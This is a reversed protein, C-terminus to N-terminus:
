QELLGSVETISGTVAPPLRNGNAAEWARIADLIESPSSPGLECLAYAAALQVGWPVDEEKAHQLFAGIVSSINRVASSFGEKLGIQSLRGILRLVTAVIVDSPSSANGGGPRNKIWRDMLPWLEKSIIHDHTWVWKQHACLLDIAFVYEWVSEKLDEGREESAQFEMHPCLKIATLLSSITASIDAPGSEEWSLVAKLCKLVQGKARKRAVLQVAKNIVGESTFIESWMNGMFLILKGPQPFDRRVELPAPAAHVLGVEKLLSYCFLRARELDRLQRCIGVYVRCLSHIYGAEVSAKQHKLKKLIAHLIPEALWKKAIGFEYVVEKEEDTMIPISLTGGVHVRSHIVPFLDFCSKSMKELAAAVARDEPHTEEAPLLRSSDGVPLIADGNSLCATEGAPGQAGPDADRVSLEEEGPDSKSLESDLRLRKASKPMAPPVLMRKGAEGVSSSPPESFSTTGTKVFATSSSAIEKYGSIQHIPLPVNKGELSSPRSLQINGKLINLTLARASLRPYMSDLIKVSNEQPVAQTASGAASPPFRGPVPLAHKPTAACFQLPSSLTRGGISAESPSPTTHPAPRKQKPKDSLPSMLPPLPTECLPSILENLPSPLSFQGSSSMIPSIPQLTRPPTAILPPLLPPLPPGMEQRIKRLTKPFHKVPTSTDANAVITEALSDQRSKRRGTRSPIRPLLKSCGGAAGAKGSVKVLGSLKHVPETGNQESSEILLESKQATVEQKETSPNKSDVPISNESTAAALIEGDKKACCEKKFSASPGGDFHHSTLHTQAMKSSQGSAAPPREQKVGWASGAASPEMSTDSPETESSPVGGNEELDSASLRGPVPQRNDVEARNVLAVSRSGEKEDSVSAKLPLSGKERSWPAAYSHEVTEATAEEAWSDGNHAQEDKPSADEALHLLEHTGSSVIMDDPVDAQGNRVTDLEEKFALFRSHKKMPNVRRLPYEEESSSSASVDLVMVVDNLIKAEDAERTLTKDIEESAAENLPQELTRNESPSGQEKNSITILGKDNSVIAPNATSAHAASASNPPPAELLERNNKVDCCGKVDVLARRESSASRELARKIEVEDQDNRRSEESHEADAEKGTLHERDSCHDTHGARTSPAMFSPDSSQGNAAVDCGPGNGGFFLAASPELSIALVAPSVPKPVAHEAQSADQVSSAASGNPDVEWVCCEIMESDEGSSKQPTPSVSKDTQIAMEQSPADNPSNGTISCSQVPRELVIGSSTGKECEVATVMTTIELPEGGEEGLRESALCKDKMIVGVSQISNSINCIVPMCESKDDPDDFPELEPANRTVSELEPAAQNTQVPEEPQSLCDEVVSVQTPLVPVNMNGPEEPLSRSSDQKDVYDELHLCGKTLVLSPAEELISGAVIDKSVISGAEIDLKDDEENKTASPATSCENRTQVVECSGCLSNEWGGAAQTSNHKLRLGGASNLETKENTDQESDKCCGDKNSCDEEEWHMKISVGSACVGEETAQTLAADTHEPQVQDIHRDMESHLRCNGLNTGRDTSEPEGNQQAGLGETRTQEPATHEALPGARGLGSEAQIDESGEKTVAAGIVSSPGDKDPAVLVSETALAPEETEQPNSGKQAPPQDGETLPSVSAEATRTLEEKKEEKMVDSSENLVQEFSSTVVEQLPRPEATEEKEQLCKVSMLDCVLTKDETETVDAISKAINETSHFAIEPNREMFECNEELHTERDKSKAGTRSLLGSKALPDSHLVSKNLELVAPRGPLEFPDSRESNVVASDYKSLPEAPNKRSVVYADPASHDHNELINEVKQADQDMEEDSSDTLEGFLMGPIAAPSFQIPSLLRPLPRVWKLIETLDEGAEEPEKSFLDLSGASPETRIDFGPSQGRPAAGDIPCAEPTEM